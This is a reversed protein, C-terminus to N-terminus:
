VRGGPRFQSDDRNSYMDTGDQADCRESKIETLATRTGASNKVYMLYDSVKGSKEFCTWEKEKM